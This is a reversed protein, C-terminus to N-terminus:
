TWSASNVPLKKICWPSLVVILPAFLGPQFKLKNTQIYEKTSKNCGRSMLCVLKEFVAFSHNKFFYHHASTIWEDNCEHRYKTIFKEFTSILNSMLKRKPPTIVSCVCISIKQKLVPMFFLKETNIPATTPPTPPSYGSLCRIWCSAVLSNVYHIIFSQITNKKHTYIM